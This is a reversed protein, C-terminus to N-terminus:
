VLRYGRWKQSARSKVESNNEELSLSCRIRIEDLEPIGM